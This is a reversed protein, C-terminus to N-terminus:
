FLAAECIKGWVDCQHSLVSGISHERGDEAKGGLDGV